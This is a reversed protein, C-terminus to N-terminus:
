RFLFLFFILLGIGLGWLSGIAKWDERNKKVRLEEEYEKMEKEHCMRELDAEKNIRAITVEDSEPILKKSGCYPCTLVTRSADIELVGNCDECTLKIMKKNSQKLIAGCETCFREGEKAEHGCKYCFM